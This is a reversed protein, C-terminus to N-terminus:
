KIFVFRKVKKGDVEVDSFFMNLSRVFLVGSGGLEPIDYLAKYLVKEIEEETDWVIGLVKYRKDFSKYHRYEGLKVKEM